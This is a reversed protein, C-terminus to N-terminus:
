SKPAHHIIIIYRGSHHSPRKPFKPNAFSAFDTKTEPLQGVKELLEFLRVNSTKGKMNLMLFCTQLNCFNQEKGKRQLLNQGIHM